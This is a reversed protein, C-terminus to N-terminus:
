KALLVIIMYNKHTTSLQIKPQQFNNQIQSKTKLAM